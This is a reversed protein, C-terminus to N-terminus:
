NLDFSLRIGFYVQRPNLFWFTSANPMDIYAKDDLVQQIKSADVEAWADNSYQMYKGTSREFYIARESDAPRSQDVSSLYEIPQYEIGPERYDGIKDDGPINDYATSEPLHLSARYDEDTTNWLRLTNLANNMDVLFQVKFKNFSVTKSLRLTLDFYDKSEVNYSIGEMQKPNYTVWEGAQWNMLANLLFGDFVHYGGLSPGFGDPTYFSANVRAYPRPIPRQQYLNVTAEDYKKQLLPDEYIEERGFGGSTSVQYTYNAFGSFWRGNTKRLTLEFGRIDEYSTSTTKDYTLGGISNYETTNQQDTIDKYYAALQLLYNEFLVHDYGLEYEITKALILNPDGIQTLKRDSTRQIRFLTEYQPMQKFHGYNFFLKSNETIPHSIGLRPSLQWQSKSASTDFERESNYKSSFFDINYPDVDWWDTHSNSYDVRFGANMTFGKTELKDQLYFSLRIPFVHMQVRNSYTKGESASAIVGYDLDLDNYTFEFGSKVLNNFNLQSTFDAKLSTSSVVSFDRAKSAHSTSGVILGETTQPWYGFPNEDRFYGPVIEYVTTTDRMRTPRTNYDRRFNELSVEYFTNPNITHTLKASISRHGIDSLCFDWDAFMSQLSGSAVDAIESPYHPYYGPAWNSEMTYRKGLLSSVRLKIADSIDSTIQMTWDYDVYDPRTLPFLLMERDRRYSTFFRLNGLKEGIFPVPGGFGGDLEYDPENNIQKKRVEYLFVRQAAMPTLDNDPNNDSCLIDSIENWGAFVPYQDQTYKDWAGSSTGTWCVDDDLYSRLWYSDADQVDPIGEGRWYKPAPPSYRGTFSGYYGTKSGEYTVVNVLGSQVQGYEANFGGREISIEKVASLAVKSVPENNRPDRMTVGDVMYLVNEGESGRIKYGNEVGAQMGVIGGVDTVPLAEVQSASVAVVSTAVDMKVPNKDAIVTVAEGELAEMELFFDIRATQDIQVRAASVTVKKYGIVSVQVDYMGPPVHLITYQGELNSAAGLATGTIIVNAGPLPDGTTKDVVIGAIKGTTGAWILTSCLFVMLLSTVFVQKKKERM